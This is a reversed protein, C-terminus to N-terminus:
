PFLTRTRLLRWDEGTPPALPTPLPRPHTDVAEGSVVATGPTAAPNVHPAALATTYVPSADPQFRLMGLLTGLVLALVAVASLRSLITVVVPQRRAPRAVQQVLRRYLTRRVPSGASFDLHSLHQELEDDAADDPLAGLLSKREIDAKELSTKTTRM